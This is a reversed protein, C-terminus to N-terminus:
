AIELGIGRKSRVIQNVRQTPAGIHTAFAVLLVDMPVLFEDLLMEGPHSYSKRSVNSEGVLCDTLSVEHVGEDWRFILRRQRVSTISSPRIVRM